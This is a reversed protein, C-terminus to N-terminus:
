RELLPLYEDLALAFERDTPLEIWSFKYEVGRDEGTGTVTHTWRDRPEYVSTQYFYRVYKRGPRRTWVDSALHRVDGVTGIGSEELVERFLAELPPNTRNSRGRRSRCGM